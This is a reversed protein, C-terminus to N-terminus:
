EPRRAAAGVRGPRRTRGPTEEAPVAEKRAQAQIWQHLGVEPYVVRRGLKFSPPGDGCHRLYRLTDIPMRTIESVEPMLLYRGPSQDRDM